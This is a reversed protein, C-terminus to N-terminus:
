PPFAPGVPRVSAIRFPLRGSLQGGPDRTSLSALADRRGRPVSVHCGGGNAARTSRAAPDFRRLRTGEPVQGLPHLDPSLPTPLSAPGKKTHRADSPGIKREGQAFDFPM